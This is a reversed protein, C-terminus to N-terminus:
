IFSYVEIKIKEESNGKLKSMFMSRVVFVPKWQINIIIYTSRRRSIAVASLVVRIEANQRPRRNLEPIERPGGEDRNLLSIGRDFILRM